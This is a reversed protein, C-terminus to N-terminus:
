WVPESAGPPRSAKCARSLSVGADAGALGAGYREVQREARAFDGGAEWCAVPM